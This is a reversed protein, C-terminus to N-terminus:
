RPMRTGIIVGLKAPTRAETPTGERQGPPTPAPVPIRNSLILAIAVWRDPLNM